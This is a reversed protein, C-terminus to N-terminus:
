PLHNSTPSSKMQIPQLKTNMSSPLTLSRAIKSPQLRSIIRSTATTRGQPALIVKDQPVFIGHNTECQFYREYF